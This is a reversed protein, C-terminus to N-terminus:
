AAGGNLGNLDNLVDILLNRSDAEGYLMEIKQIVAALNPAPCASLADEAATTVAVANAWESELEDVRLKGCVAANAERYPQLAIQEAERAMRLAHLGATWASRDPASAVAPLAAVPALAIGALLARRSTKPNTRACTPGISSVAM